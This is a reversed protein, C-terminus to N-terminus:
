GYKEKLYHTLASKDSEQPAQTSKMEELRKLLRTAALQSETPQLSTEEQEFIEEFMRSLSIGRIAATRKAKEVIEKKVTLTLKTKMIVRTKKFSVHKEIIPDTKSFSPDSM